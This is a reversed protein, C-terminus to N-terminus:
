VVQQVPILLDPSRELLRGREEECQRVGRLDGPGGEQSADARRGGLFGNGRLRLPVFAGARAACGGEVDFAAEEGARLRHPHEPLHQIGYQVATLPSRYATLPLLYA